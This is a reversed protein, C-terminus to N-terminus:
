KKLKKYIINVEEMSLGKDYVRVDSIDGIFNRRVGHNSGIYLNPTVTNITANAVYLQKNDIYVALTNSDFTICVFHWKNDSLAINNNNYLYNNYGTEFHFFGKYVSPPIGGKARDNNGLEMITMENSSDDTRFNCLITKQSNETLTPFESTYIYSNGDM